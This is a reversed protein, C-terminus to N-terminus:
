ATTTTHKYTHSQTYMTCTTCLRKQTTSRNHQAYAREYRISENTQYILKEQNSKITYYGDVVKCSRQNTNSINHINKTSSIKTKSSKSM